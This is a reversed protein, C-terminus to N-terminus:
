ELLKGLFSILIFFGWFEGMHNIHVNGKIADRFLLIEWTLLV